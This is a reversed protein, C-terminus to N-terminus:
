SVEQIGNATKGCTAQWDLGRSTTAVTRRLCAPCLRAHRRLSRDMCRIKRRWDELSLEDHQKGRPPDVPELTGLGPVERPECLVETESTNAKRFLFEFRPRGRPAGIGRCRSPPSAAGQSAGSAAADARDLSPWVEDRDSLLFLRQRNTAPCRVDDWAAATM